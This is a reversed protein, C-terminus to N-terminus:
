KLRRLLNYAVLVHALATKGRVQAIEIDSGQWVSDHVNGLNSHFPASKDTINPPNLKYYTFIPFSRLCFGRSSAYANFYITLATIPEKGVVQRLRQWRGREHSVMRSTKPHRPLTRLSFEATFTNSNAPGGCLDPRPVASATYAVENKM